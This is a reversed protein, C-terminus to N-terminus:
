SAGRQTPIVNGTKDRWVPEAARRAKREDELERLRMGTLLYLGLTAAFAVGFLIAWATANM